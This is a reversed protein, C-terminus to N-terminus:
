NMINCDRYEEDIQIFVEYRAKEFWEDLVIQEKDKLAASRIRSWDDDLNAQHPKISNKYFILRVADKGKDDKYVLPPSITGVRMTDIAFFTNPDLQEVSIKTSGSPDLIFGGSASSLKNESFDRAAKEFSISDLLIMRRLSDLTEVTRQVDEASPAPMRLIHRTSYENGRREIMQILHIGFETEVPNSIEGPQLRLSTEEYASALEGRRFFGLEGGTQSAGPEQSYVRALSNFSEGEQIRKKLSRLLEFEQAKRESGAQPNIVIEGVEVSKSFFPLSDSPIRNFFRRVEGPTIAVDQVVTSSMKEILLQEREQERLEEKFQDISKGYYEELKEESGIQSIFYRLKSDLSRDIDYEMVSISDIESKALLVKNVILNELVRCKSNGDIAMGRTIMDLYGLELESKLIIHNDVKAIIEDIVLGDTQGYGSASIILLFALINLKIKRM